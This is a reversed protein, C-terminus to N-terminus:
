GLDLLSGAIVSRLVDRDDGCLGVVLADRHLREVLRSSGPGGRGQVGAAARTMQAVSEGLFLRAVAIDQDACADGRELQAAARAQLRQCLELRIRMDALTARTSQSGSLPRGFQIRRRAEAVSGDLLARMLGIWPALLSAREWRQILRHTHTLGSGEPGLLADAPVQCDELLIDSILATRAGATELREGVVLGPAGREVLFTSVGEKWHLPDTVASVVLVDAVPGNVVWSKRGRLVWGGARRLARTRIGLPDSATHPEGHAWAGIWEGRALPPLARRRQAETGLRDIPLACGFAHACVALALGADGSGEGLGALLLSLAPASLGGGGHTAPLGAGLLGAAGLRRFLAGDWRSERDRAVVSPAIEREAFARARERHPEHRDPDPTVGGAGSM